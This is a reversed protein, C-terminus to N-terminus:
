RQGLLPYRGIEETLTRRLRETLPKEMEQALPKMMTQALTKRLPRNPVVARLSMGIITRGVMVMPSVKM